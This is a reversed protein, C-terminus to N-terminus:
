VGYQYKPNCKGWRSEFWNVLGYMETPGLTFSNVFCINKAPKIQCLNVGYWGLFDCTTAKHSM